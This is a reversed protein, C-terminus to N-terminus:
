EPYNLNKVSLLRFLTVYDCIYVLELGLTSIYTTGTYGDAIFIVQAAHELSFLIM